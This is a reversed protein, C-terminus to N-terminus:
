ASRMSGDVWIAEDLPAKDLASRRAVPKQCQAKAIDLRKITQEVYRKSTRFM